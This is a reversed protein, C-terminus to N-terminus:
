PTPWRVGLLARRADAVTGAQDVAIKASRRIAEIEASVRAFADARAVIEAAATVASVGLVAAEAAIHPGPTGGRQLLERAEAEKRMYALAQGAGPTVFRSRAVEAMADVSEKLKTRVAQIDIPEYKM